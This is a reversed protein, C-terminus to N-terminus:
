WLRICMAKGLPGLYWFLGHKSGFEPFLLKQLAWTHVVNSSPAKPNSIRLCTLTGCLYQACVQSFMTASTSTCAEERYYSTYGGDGCLIATYVLALPDLDSSCSYGGPRGELLKRERTVLMGWQWLSPSYLGPGISGFGFYM